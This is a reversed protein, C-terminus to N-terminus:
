PDEILAVQQATKGISEVVATSADPHKDDMVLPTLKSHVILNTARM